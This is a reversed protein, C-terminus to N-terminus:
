TSPDDWKDYRFKYLEIEIQLRELFINNMLDHLQREYDAFAREILLSVAQREEESLNAPLELPVSFKVNYQQFVAKMQGIVEDQMEAPAAAKSLIERLTHEIKTWGQVTQSPFEILDGM